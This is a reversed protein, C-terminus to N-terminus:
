FKKTCKTNTRKKGDRYTTTVHLFCQFEGETNYRPSVNYESQMVLKDGKWCHRAYYMDEAGGKWYSGVCNKDKPDLDLGGLGSLAENFAFQRTKPDYLFAEVSENGIAAMDVSVVLDPCGDNNFDRYTDLLESNAHRNTVDRLVQVIKGSADKIIVNGKSPEAKDTSVWEFSLASSGGPSCWPDAAWASLSCCGLMAISVIKGLVHM